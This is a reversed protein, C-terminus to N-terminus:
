KGTGGQDDTLNSAYFRLITTANVEGTASTQYSVSDVTIIRENKKMADFFLPLSSGSGTLSVSITWVPDNMGETGPVKQPSGAVWSLNADFAIKGIVDILGPLDPGDPIASNVSKIQAELSDANSAFVEAKAIQSKIEEVQGYNAEKQSVMTAKSPVPVWKPLAGIIVIVLILTLIRKRNM